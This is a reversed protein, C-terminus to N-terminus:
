RAEITATPESRVERLEFTSDYRDPDVMIRSPMREVVFDRGENRQCWVRREGNLYRSYIESQDADSLLVDDIRIWAIPADWARTNTDSGIYVDDSQSHIPGYSGLQDVMSGNIWLKINNTDYGAGIIGPLGPTQVLVDVGTYQAYYPSAKKQFYLKGTVPGVGTNELWLELNNSNNLLWHKGPQEWRPWEICFTFTAANTLGKLGSVLLSDYEKQTSNPTNYIDELPYANDQINCNGIFIISDALARLKLTCSNVGTFDLNELQVKTWTNGQLTTITTALTAAGTDDYAEFQIIGDGMLWVHASCGTTVTGTAISAYVQDNSTTLQVVRYVQDVGVINPKVDSDFSGTALGSVSDKWLETGSVPYSRSQLASCQSELLLGKMNWPNASGLRRYRPEDDEYQLLQNRDADYCCSVRTGGSGTFDRDFTGASGIQAGTAKTTGHHRQFSQYFITNAGYNGMLRVLNRNHYWRELMQIQDVTLQDCSVRFRRRRSKLLLTEDAFWNEITVDNSQGSLPQVVCGDAMDISEQVTESPATGIVIAPDVAM